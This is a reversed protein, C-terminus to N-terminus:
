RVIKAVTGAIIKLDTIIGAEQIYKLNLALKHPMIEQVYTQEPDASQALIENENSYHISAYDTIGPKVNLVKLQEASYCSVYKRVEPRPGVLSMEGALVNFLQPLEDLKYKRLIYGAKTIRPDHGGVTLLGKSDSDPRMTRFKLIGFDKGGKGVRIQKYLVNGRSDAKIWLAILLLLPLLIVIATLSVVVDFCRKIM